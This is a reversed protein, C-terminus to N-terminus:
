LCDCIRRTFGLKGGKGLGELFEFDQKVLPAMKIATGSDILRSANRSDVEVFAAADFDYLAISQIVPSRFFASSELTFDFRNPTVVPSTSEFQVDILAVPQAPNRQITFDDNDSSTLKPIGGVANTGRVVNIAEPFVLTPTYDIELVAARAPDGDFSFGLRESTDLPDNQIIIVISSGANWAPQNVMEQILPSLDPTTTNPGSDDPFWPDINWSVSGSTLVRTTLPTLDGFEEADVSLEGVVPVTLSGVDTETATFRITASNITSGQPIFTDQFRLGIWQEIGNENGIELDSSTRRVDGILPGSLDEEADDASQVISVSVTEGHVQIHSCFILLLFLSSLKLKM